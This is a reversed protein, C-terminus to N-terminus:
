VSRYSTPMLRKDKIGDQIGTKPNKAETGRRNCNMTPQNGTEQEEQM